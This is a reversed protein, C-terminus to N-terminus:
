GISANETLMRVHRLGEASVFFVLFLLPGFDRMLPLIDDAMVLTTDLCLNAIHCKIATINFFIKSLYM